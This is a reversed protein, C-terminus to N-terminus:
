PRQYNWHAMHETKPGWNDESIGNDKQFAKVAADTIPGFVGDITGVNYGLFLLVEQRKRWTDWSETPLQNPNNNVVGNLFRYHDFAIPDVKSECAQYHGIVGCHKLPEKIIGKMIRGKEDRPFDLAFKGNTKMKPFIESLKIGLRILTKYQPDTFEYGHAWFGQVKDLKVNHPLVKNNKQHFENYAEPLKDAMARSDTEIGVSCGNNKGGHWACEVLDLTQYLTGDDDLIFHVSLKREKQLVAFTDASHYLGSHHIFFQTVINQLDVMYTKTFTRKSYRKGVNTTTITKGTKRDQEQIVTKSEDYANLGGPEDWLVVKTGIDYKQGCVVISTNM